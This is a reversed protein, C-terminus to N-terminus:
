EGEKVSDNLQEAGDKKMIRLCSKCTVPKTTPHDCCLLNNGVFLGCLTMGDFAGNGWSRWSGRHVKGTAVFFINRM